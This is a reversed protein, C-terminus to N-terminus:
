PLVPVVRQHLGRDSGHARGRPLRRSSARRVQDVRAYSDNGFCPRGFRRARAGSSAPRCKVAGPKPGYCAGMSEGSGGGCASRGGRARVGVQRRSASRGGRGCASRGSRVASVVFREGSRMRSSASFCRVNSAERSNASFSRIAARPRMRWNMNPLRSPRSTGSPTTDPTAPPVDSLLITTIAPTASAKAPAREIPAPSYRDPLDSACTCRAAILSSSSSIAAMGSM